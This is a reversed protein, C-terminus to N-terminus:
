PSSERPPLKAEAQRQEWAALRAAYRERAMEYADFVCVACGSGCCDELQPEPPAIPRPDASAVHNPASMGYEPM